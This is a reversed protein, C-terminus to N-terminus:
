SVLSLIRRTFDDVIRVDDTLVSISMKVWQALQPVDEVQLDLPTKHLHFTIQRVMFREAAPGLYDQTILLAQHYLSTNM